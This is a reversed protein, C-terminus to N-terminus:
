HLGMQHTMDGVAQAAAHASEKMKRMKRKSILKDPRITGNAISNTLVAGAIGGIAAGIVATRIYGMSSMKM